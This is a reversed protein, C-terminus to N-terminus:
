DGTVFFARDGVVRSSPRFVVETELKAGGCKERFLKVYGEGARLLAGDDVDDDDMLGQLPVPAPRM